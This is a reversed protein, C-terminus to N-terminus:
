TYKFFKHPGLFKYGNTLTVSASHTASFVSKSKSCITDKDLFDIPLSEPVDFYVFTWHSCFAYPAVSTLRLENHLNSETSGHDLLKLLINIYRKSISYIFKYDMLTNKICKQGNSCTTSQNLLDYGAM